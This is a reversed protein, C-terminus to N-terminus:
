LTIVYNYVALAAKAGEGAAIVVQKFPVTTVDGAAFIGAIKTSCDINIEIEGTKNKIMDSVFNSAPILGIEVFIGDTNITEEKDTKTNKVILREVGDKGEVRVCVSDYVVSVRDDNLVKDMLVPDATLESLNQVIVVESAYSLMDIAAEVGSNGGGVVVVKKNVFVPGDCTTCYAVGKGIFELEGPVGLPRPSKGTAVIIAKAQYTKGDTCVVKKVIDEHAISTVKTNKKMPVKFKQVHAYFRNVLESSAIDVDGIWNEISSSTAIQGGIDDTVVAVNLKKRATYLVANLAAPGGGIILVDYIENESVSKESSSFSALNINLDM